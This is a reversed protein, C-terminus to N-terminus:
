RVGIGVRQLSAANRDVAELTCACRPVARSDCRNPTDVDIAQARGLPQAVGVDANAMPAHM